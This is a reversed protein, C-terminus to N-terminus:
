AATSAAAKTKGFVYRYDIFVEQSKAVSEIRALISNMAIFSVSIGLAFILREVVVVPILLTWAEAPMPITLLWITGGVAHATFTAGLSRMFLNKSFFLAIIPILWFLSYYWAQGAVPHTIFITMAILPVAMSLVKSKLTMKTFGKGAFAFYAVAFLMPFLRAISILDFTKGSLISNAIQSIFVALVGFVPGLFAGTMPGFFQFYTFFQNEAGVLSSFNFHSGIFSLVAFLLVFAIKKVTFLENLKM